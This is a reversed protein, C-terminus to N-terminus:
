QTAPSLFIVFETWGDPNTKLSFSFGHNLLIERTLTLGIGQGDPKTSFFPNFLNAAIAEPIPRGSDRVALQHPGLHVEVEEGPRCAEVANKVVNVLVQELQDRDVAATVPGDPPFYVLRVGAAEAQHRMLQAVNGVLDSLDNTVKHPLPLRVVDAFRRM